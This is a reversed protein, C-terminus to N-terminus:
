GLEAVLRYLAHGSAAYKTEFDSLPAEGASFPVASASHGALALAAAFEEVYLQWNSRLELRGGLALLSPFVPHGHWRRRLHGPKPWPNPYLLYHGTLRWGAAQALRWFDAAEARLLLLNDPRTEALGIEIRAASQDLGIVLADPHRAALRMASRGTGCGSDLLLARSEGQRTRWDCADDFARRNHEALPKQWPNNLHRRVVADLDPHLNEQTSSVPRSNAQM